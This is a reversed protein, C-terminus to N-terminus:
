FILFMIIIIIIYLPMVVAFITDRPTYVCKILNCAVVVCESDFIPNAATINRGNCTQSNDHEGSYIFRVTFIVEFTPVRNSRHLSPTYLEHLLIIVATYVDRTRARLTQAAARLGALWGAATL